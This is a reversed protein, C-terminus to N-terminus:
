RLFGDRNPMKVTALTTDSLEDQEAVLGNLHLVYATVAYVEDVAMSGPRDYPMTRNIYDWLTTAYPWYSGVTKVAGPKTLTGQGGRLPDFPGETGTAGHCSACRAAYIAKGERASGSGPPLGRGDPLVASRFSDASSGEVARGIGLSQAHLAAGISLPIVLLLGCPIIAAAFRGRGRDATAMRSPGM